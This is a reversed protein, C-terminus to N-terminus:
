AKFDELSADYIFLHILFFIFVHLHRKFKLKDSEVLVFVFPEDLNGKRRRIYNINFVSKHDEKNLAIVAFNVM